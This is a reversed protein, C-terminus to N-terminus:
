QLELLLNYFDQFQPYKKSSAILYSLTQPIDNLYNEKGDRYYLRSFIGVVKIQRQMGMFDFWQLFIEFSCNQIVKNQLLQQYFYAVWAEVQKDPWSIYSDRLLSVLDYTCPGIVADQFDIIGPNNDDVLMLNRSHYDRHVIVTPQLLIQETLYALTQQLIQQQSQNLNIGLHEKVYWQEFLDMELNLLEHNYDPLDIWQDKKISQLKLLVTLAQKYLNDANDTNINDLYNQKGLDGLLLFGEKKNSAYIHPVNLGQSELFGAIQIFPKIDEFEPPADMIIYSQDGMLDPNDSHSFIVRFYGRFSADSSAIEFSKITCQLKVLWNKIQEIRQSM